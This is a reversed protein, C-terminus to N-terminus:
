VERFVVTFPIDTFIYDFWIHCPLILSSMFWNAMIGKLLLAKSVAAKVSFLTGDYRNFHRWPITRGVMNHRKKVNPIRPTHLTKKVVRNWILCTSSQLNDWIIPYEEMVIGLCFNAVFLPIIKFFINRAFSHTPPCHLEVLYCYRQWWTLSFFGQFYNWLKRSHSICFGRCSIYPSRDFKCSFWTPM